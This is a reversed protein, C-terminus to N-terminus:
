HKASAQRQKFIDSFHLRHRTSDKRRLGLRPLPSPSTIECASSSSPSRLSGSPSSAIFQRHSFPTPFPGFFSPSLVPASTGPERQKKPTVPTVVEVGADFVFSAVSQSDITDKQTTVTESTADLPFEEVLEQYSKILSCGPTIGELPSDEPTEPVQGSEKLLSDAETEAETEGVSYSLSPGSSSTVTSKLIPGPSLAAAEELHDLLDSLLVSSDGAPESDTDSEVEEHSPGEDTQVREHTGFDSPSIKPLQFRTTSDRILIKTLRIIM